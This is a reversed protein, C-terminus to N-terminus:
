DVYKDELKEYVERINGHRVWDRGFHANLDVRRLFGAKTLQLIWWQWERRTRHHDLGHKPPHYIDSPTSMIFLGGIRLHSRMNGWVQNLDQEQIHEVFEWATVVDFQYPIHDGRHVIFPHTVDCTFLNDPIFPWGGMEVLKPHTSGELGVADNGEDLISKVFTGAGCGFDLVSMPPTVIQYLKANFALNFSKDKEKIWAPYISTDIHDYSDIAIPHDTDLVWDSM